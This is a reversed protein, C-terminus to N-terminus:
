KPSGLDKTEIRRFSNLIGVHFRYTKPDVVKITALYYHVRNICDVAFYFFLIIFTASMKDISLALLPAPAVM